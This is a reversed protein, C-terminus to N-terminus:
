TKGTSARRKKLLENAKKLIDQELQLRRVERRLEELQRELEAREPGAPSGNPHKMSAPAERGLLQNKWNYLTERCVGIERAIDEAGGQRSCLALVASQRLTTPLRARQATSVVRTSAVPDLEHVWAILSARGPYGLARITAAICRGHALYHGVAAQRQEQSYKPQPREYGRPLDRRQEYERCWGKLANKTPYGLQRITARVRKGLKIYLEVARLRDEYSYM